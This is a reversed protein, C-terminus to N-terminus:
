RVTFRFFFIILCTIENVTSNAFNRYLLFRSFFLFFGDNMFSAHCYFPRRNPCHSLVCHCRYMEEFKRTHEHSECNNGNRGARDFLIHPFFLAIANHLLVFSRWRDLKGVFQVDRTAVAIWLRAPLIVKNRRERLGSIITTYWGLSATASRANESCDLEFPRDCEILVNKCLGRGSSRIIPYFKNKSNLAIRSLTFSFPM